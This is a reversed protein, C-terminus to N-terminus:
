NCVDDCNSSVHESKATEKCNSCSQEKQKQVKIALSTSNPNVVDEIYFQETKVDTLTSLLMNLLILLGMLLIIKKLLKFNLIKFNMM